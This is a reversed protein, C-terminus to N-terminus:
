YEFREGALPPASMPPRRFQTAQEFGYALGILKGESFPRGLFEVGVPVGIPADKTSPSFGGQVTIAPLGTSSAMFGNREIQDPEPTAPVVLRRQHTYFLADLGYKDMARVLADRFQAQRELRKGFDPDHRADKLTLAQKLGRLVAPNSKGAAAVYEALDKYKGKPGLSAFYEDMLWQNEFEGVSLAGGDDRPADVEPIDVPFITAGAARIADIAKMTVATVVAHEPHSGDGFLNTVYGVRAGRLSKSDLFATYTQPAKGIGAWTSTDAADFGVMYDMMVAADAVYHAIPGSTDQTYSIPIIGDRSILGFTPRIGVGNNASAPSRTSQGTDSGTGAIAFVAAVGAGTGGSSGGPTRTLDYPNLTQGLLSSITVGNRALEGLNAKAIIVAGAARLRSVTFADDPPMSGILAKSGGTTPMDFTDYNDKLVIPVGHLPSRPGKAKREVDLARAYELAKPNTAIIANIRPGSQDYAKIRALCLKVLQESTLAGADFAANIDAISATQLDFTAAHTPAAGLIGLILGCLVM